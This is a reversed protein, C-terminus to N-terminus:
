YHNNLPTLSKVKLTLGDLPQKTKIFDLIIEDGAARQAMPTEVLAPTVINARIGRSCHLLERHIARVSPGTEKRLSGQSLAKIYAILRCM